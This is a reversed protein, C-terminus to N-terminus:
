CRFGENWQWRFNWLQGHRIASSPVLRPGVLAEAYSRSSAAGTSNKVVMLISGGMGFMQVGSLFVRSPSCRASVYMEFFALVKRLELACSKWGKGERGEPIVIFSCLGGGGYEVLTLFRDHSNSGRHAIFM